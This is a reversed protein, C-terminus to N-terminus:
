PVRFTWAIASGSSATRAYGVAVHLGAKLAHLPAGYITGETPSGGGKELLQTGDVWLASEVFPRQARIEIGVQPLLPAHSGPQPGLIAISVARSRDPRWRGEVLHFALANARGAGSSQVVAWGSGEFLTRVAGALSRDTRALAAMAAAPGPESARRVSSSLGSASAAGAGVCALLAAAVILALRKM